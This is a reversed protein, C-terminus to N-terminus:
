LQQKLLVANAAGKVVTGPEITLVQGGPIYIKKDLIYTKDCTFAAGATLEGGYTGAIATYGAMSSVIVEPRTSVAPCGCSAGLNSQALIPSAAILSLSAAAFLKSLNIKKM